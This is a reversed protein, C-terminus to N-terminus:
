DQDVAAARSEAVGSVAEAVVPPLSSAAIAEIIITAIALSDVCSAFSV